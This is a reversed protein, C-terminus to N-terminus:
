ELGLLQLLYSLLTKVNHLIKDGNILLSCGLTIVSLVFSRNARAQALLSQNEAEEAKQNAVKASQEASDALRKLEQAQVELNKTNDSIEKMIATHQYALSDKPDTQTIINSMRSVSDLKNLQEVNRQLNELTNFFEM